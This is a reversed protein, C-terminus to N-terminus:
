LSKLEQRLNNILIFLTHKERNALHPMASSDPHAMRLITNDDVLIRRLILTADSDTSGTANQIDQICNTLVQTTSDESNYTGFFTSPDQKIRNEIETLSFRYLKEQTSSQTDHGSVHYYSDKNPHTHHPNASDHDKSFNSLSARWNTFTPIFGHTQINMFVQSYFNDGASANYGAERTKIFDRLTYFCVTSFHKDHADFTHYDFIGKLMKFKIPTLYYSMVARSGASMCSHFIKSGPTSSFDQMLFDVLGKRTSQMQAITKWYYSANLRYRFASSIREQSFNNNYYARSQTLSSTSTSLASLVKRLPRIVQIADLSYSISISVLLLIKSLKM